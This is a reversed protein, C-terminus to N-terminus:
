WQGIVTNFDVDTGVAVFNLKIYNISRAPKIYIDGVFENRDIVVGPNNSSDCVVKFDTIGRRGQVDRLYPQVMNRFRARTFEDNFEFLLSHAAIQISKELVIFLRRVNIRDFASPKGHLTKDGYLIIGPGRKNIVSNIDNKYLLDRDSQDPNYALKVINKIIGRNEGAPSWWPDREDDTRAILGATDGCGPIWRYKDNYRDYQYKYMTDLIAYSSSRLASRLQTLSEAEQFPNNVVDTLAPSITVVCDKRVTVINDILYNPLGEGHTGHASKGAIIISVDVEDRNKFQDYARALANLPISSESLSDTGGTLSVALPITSVPTIGVSTNSTAGARDKVAWVYLSSNNLVNKYYSSGGQEAKADTARSVSEWIELITGRVGSFLGDEDTIVIHMEDGSGGQAAVYASTGPVKDVVRFHEWYRRVTNAVINNSLTFRSEMNISATAIGANASPAGVATVKLFQQGVNANFAELQDGVNISNIITNALSNATATNAGVDTIVLTAVNSNVTFTLAMTYSANAAAITTTYANASDCVSVKLSNGITGPYKAIYYANSSLSAETALFHSANKIQTNPVTGTGGTANFANADVARSVWIADSYALFNAASYFTEYNSDTPKGFRAVLEEETSILDRDEVPGWSFVGGIAAETSSVGPVITTLDIENTVIGPSVLNGM